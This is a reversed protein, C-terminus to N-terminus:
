ADCASGHDYQGALIVGPPGVDPLGNTSIEVCPPILTVVCLRRGQGFQAIEVNSFLMVRVRVASWANFSNISWASVRRSVTAPTASALAYLSM